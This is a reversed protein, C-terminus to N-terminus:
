QATELELRQPDLWHGVIALLAFLGGVPMALYAWFMSVDELGIVSQVRGRQAYDWGVWVIVAVLLLAAAAVLADLVRRARGHTLRYLVDVSVMAGIRAGGHVYSGLRGTAALRAFRRIAMNEGIKGVLAQRAQEVTGGKCPLRSLSEVDAPAHTAVLEALAAAFDQFERNKAVFDTECNLEVLAGTRGDQAVHAAVIGEAAVRSAAKSAKNGLKIRLIEEARAMDGGAETLAKKCEMMPADTKERLEKVMSATVEAM